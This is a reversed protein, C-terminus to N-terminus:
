YNIFELPPGGTKRRELELKAIWKVWQLINFADHWMAEICFTHSSPNCYRAMIEGKPPHIPEASEVQRILKEDSITIVHQQIAEYLERASSIRILETNM